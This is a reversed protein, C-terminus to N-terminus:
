PAVGSSPVQCSLRTPLEMRWLRWHAYMTLVLIGHALLLDGLLPLM